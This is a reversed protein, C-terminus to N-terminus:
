SIVCWTFFFDTRCFHVKSLQRSRMQNSVAGSGKYLTSFTRFSPLNTNSVREEYAAGAGHQRNRSHQLKWQVPEDQHVGAVRGCVQLSLWRLWQHQSASHFSQCLCFVFVNLLGCLSVKRAKGKNYNNPPFSVRQLFFVQRNLELIQYLFSVTMNRGRACRCHSLCRFIVFWEAAGSTDVPQM